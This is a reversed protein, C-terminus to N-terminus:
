RVPVQGRSELGYALGGGAHRHLEGELHQGQRGAAGAFDATHRPIFDVEVLCVQVMGPDRIFDPLDCLTGREGLARAMRSSARPRLSLPPRTKGAGREPAFIESM